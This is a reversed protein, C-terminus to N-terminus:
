PGTPVVPEARDAGAQESGCGRRGSDHNERLDDGDRFTEDGVSGASGRVVADEPACRGNPSSRRLDERRPDAGATPGSPSRGFWHDCMQGVEILLGPNAKEDFRALGWNLGMPSALM